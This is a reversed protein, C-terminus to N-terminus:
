GERLPTAHVVDFAVEEGRIAEQRSGHVDVLLAPDGKHGTSGDWLVLDALATCRDEQGAADVQMDVAAGVVVDHLSAPGGEMHRAEVGAVAGRGHGGRGHRGRGFIEIRGEPAQGRIHPLSGHASSADQADVQLARVEIWGAEAGLWVVGPRQGHLFDPGQVGDGGMRSSVRAGSSAALRSAM